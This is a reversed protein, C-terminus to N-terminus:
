VTTEDRKEFLLNNQQRFYGNDINERWKPSQRMLAAKGVCREYCEPCLNSRNPRIPKCCQCCVLGSYRVERSVVGNRRNRVKTTKKQKQRCEWCTKYTTDPLKHGCKTCEGNLRRKDRLLKSNKRRKENIKDKQETTLSYYRNSKHENNKYTCDGCLVRGEEAKQKGCHVCMGISKLWERREKNYQKKYELSQGM